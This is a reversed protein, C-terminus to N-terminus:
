AFGVQRRIWPVSDIEGFSPSRLYELIFLDFWWFKIFLFKKFTIDGCYHSLLDKLRPCFHKSELIERLHQVSASNVFDKEEEGCQWGSGQQEDYRGSFIIYNIFYLAYMLTYFDNEGNLSFSTICVDFFLFITSVMVYFWVFITALAFFIFVCCPCTEFSLLLNIILFPIYLSPLDVQSPWRTASSELNRRSSRKWGAPKRWPTAALVSFMWHSILSIVIWAM